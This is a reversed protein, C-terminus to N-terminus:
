VCRSTYLLCDKLVNIAALLDRAVPAAKMKLADLFIPTYRRMQSFGDGILSLFDFNEPQALTQAETVSQAFTDWPIIAEIAAFPDNGSQKADVLARGIRWYLRVKDNITQGSQQFRDQRKYM